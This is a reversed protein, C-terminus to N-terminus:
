RRVLREQVGVIFVACSLLESLFFLFSFSVDVFEGATVFFQALFCMNIRRRGSADCFFLQREGQANCIKRLLFERNRRLSESQLFSYGVDANRVVDNIFVGAKSDDLAADVLEPCPAVLLPCNLRAM